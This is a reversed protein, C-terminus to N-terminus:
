FHNAYDCGNRQYRDARNRQAPYRRERLLLLLGGVCLL